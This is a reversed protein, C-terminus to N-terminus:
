GFYVCNPSNLNNGSLHRATVPGDSESSASNATLVISVSASSHELYFDEAFPAVNESAFKQRKKSRGTQASRKVPRRELPSTDRGVSRHNDAGSKNLLTM